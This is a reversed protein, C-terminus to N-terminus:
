DKTSTQEAVLRLVVDDISPRWNAAQFAFDRLVKSCDLRSNRPRKAKTPWESSSIPTVESFPGGIARSTEFIHRALDYWTAEGSGACHYCEGAGLAPESSWREIITLVADAIDNASTPNGRQDGVVSMQDRTRALDLMTKVFNRGFPSYVWATRLIIADPHQAHVQLEGALKSRGYVTQPGVSDTEFYPLRKVGDYVYDTSLHILKADMAKASRALQGAADCNIRMALDAEVEARDVATYAAASVVVDPAYQRVTRVITEPKLLDLHPRGAFILDLEPYGTAREALARAVQGETGTVLVKISM